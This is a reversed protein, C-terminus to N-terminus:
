EKLPEYAQVTSLYQSHYVGGFVYVINNVVDGCNGGRGNPHMSGRSRWSDTVADYEYVPENNPYGGVVYIKGDVVVGLPGPEPYPQGTSWNDLAPDYIDINEGVTLNSLIYIRNNLTVCVAADRGSPNAQKTQWTNTSPEYGEVLGTDDFVYIKNDAVCAVHRGTITQMPAKTTWQETFPDFEEVTDQAIGPTNVGGMVYIKGTVVNSTHSRRITSMSPMTTWTDNVTDYKEMVTLSVNGDHGGIVYIDTGVASASAATRATPMDTRPSWPNFTVNITFKNLETTIEGDTVYLVIDPHDGVDGNTPTGSIRGTTDDLGLWAPLLDVSFNLSDRDIDSSTPVFLYNSYARLSLPPDGSIKPADNVPEITILGTSINSDFTGDTVKYKFQDTGHYDQNPRYSLNPYEGEIKGFLPAQEVFFLLTDNQRDTVPLDIAVSSDELTTLNFSAAIPATNGGKSNVQCATLLVIVLIISIVGFKFLM